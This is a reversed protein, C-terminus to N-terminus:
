MKVIKELIILLLKQYSLKNKSAEENFYFLVSSPINFYKSYKQLTNMSPNRLGRELEGIYAKSLSLEKATKSISMDQIVRLCKLVKGINNDKEQM